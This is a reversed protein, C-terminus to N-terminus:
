SPLSFHHLFRTIIDTVELVVDNDTLSTVGSQLHQQVIQLRVGALLLLVGDGDVGEGALPAVSIADGDSRTSQRPESSPSSESVRTLTM